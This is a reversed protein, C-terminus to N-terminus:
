YWTLNVRGTMRRLNAFNTGAQQYGADSHHGTWSQIWYGLLSSWCCRREACLITRISPHINFSHFLFLLHFSYVFAPHVAPWHTSWSGLPILHFSSNCASQSFCMWGSIPLSPSSHKPISLSKSTSVTILLQLFPGLILWTNVTIKSIVNCRFCRQGSRGNLSRKWVWSWWVAGRKQYRYMPKDQLSREMLLVHWGYNSLYFAVVVFVFRVSFQWM